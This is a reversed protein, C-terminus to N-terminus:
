RSFGFINFRCKFYRQFIKFWCDCVMGAWRIFLLFCFIFIQPLYIILGVILASVSAIFVAGAAVDKILGIKSHQEPHIFDALAEIATNVGEISMVLGMALIQVAWEMASIEFYFGAATVLLAIVFQIKISAETRLLLIAGKLAYGVGKIRNAVFNKKKTM